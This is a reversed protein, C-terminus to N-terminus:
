ILQKLKKLKEAQRKLLDQRAKEKIKLLKVAEQEKKLLENKTLYIDYCSIFTEEPCVDIKYSRDKSPVRTNSLKVQGFDIIHVLNKNDIIVNNGNKDLHSIGNDYLLKFALYLNEKLEKPVQSDKTIKNIKLYENLTLGDVYEMIICLGDDSKRIELIKPVITYNNSSKSSNKISDLSSSRRLFSARQQAQIELLTEESEINMNSCKAIINPINLGTTPYILYRFITQTNNNTKIIPGLSINM